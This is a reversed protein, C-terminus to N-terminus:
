TNLKHNRLASFWPMPYVRYSFIFFLFALLFWTFFASYAAGKIGMLPILTMNLLVNFIAIFIGIYGNYKTKEAYFTYPSVILYVGQFAFGMIIPYAVDIYSHYSIPLIIKSIFPFLLCFIIGALLFCGALAYSLRVIFINVKKDNKKLNEFLWPMWAANLSTGLVSILSALQYIAAYHGVDELGLYHKLLFRDSSLFIFASISYFVTPISFKLATNFWPKSFTFSLLNSNYLLFLTIGMFICAYTVRGLALMPFTPMWWCFLIVSSLLLISQGISYLGYIWPKRQLRYLNSLMSILGMASATFIALIFFHSSLGTKSIISEPIFFALSCFIAAFAALSFVITSLYTKLDINDSYYHRSLAGHINLSVIPILLAEVTIFLSYAGYDETSVLRIVIPLLVFPIASNLVNLLTYIFSDSIFSKLNDPLKM